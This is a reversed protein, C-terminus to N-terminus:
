FPSYVLPLPATCILIDRDILVVDVTSILTCDCNDSSLPAKLKELNIILCDVSFLKSIEEVGEGLFQFSLGESEEHVLQGDVSGLKDVGDVLFQSYSTNEVLSTGGIIIRDLRHKRL